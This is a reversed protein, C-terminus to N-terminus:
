ESVRFRYECDLAYKFVKESDIARQTLGSADSIIKDFERWTGIGYENKLLTKFISEFIKIEENFPYKSTFADGPNTQRTGPPTFRAPGILLSKGPVDDGDYHKKNM